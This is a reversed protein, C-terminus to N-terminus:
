WIVVMLQVRFSEHAPIRDGFYAYTEDRMQPILQSNKLSRAVLTDQISVYSRTKRSRSPFVALQARGLPYGIYQAVAVVNSLM